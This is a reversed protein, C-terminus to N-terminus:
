FDIPEYKLGLSKAVAEHCVRGAAVNVGGRLSPELRTAEIVGHDAIRAAYPMTANTLAFTSTHAVAGPMNTVGYHLVGDVVYTPADHTTGHITEICGGQDIAVDMIVSGPEMARVLDHTVLTPARGGPLLVAGVVLDARIVEESITDRNSYLLNVRAGFIDDLYELRPISVDLISVTAGLGVAIKAAATGVTGGGLIVVRGRRVGPVGGLLVGKGGRDSELLNAGIQVSMKGAVESMPQLLPLRGDAMAITEYAVATVRRELLVPALDPVAALHFYTFITQNEGILEYESVVPEKVKIIMESSAWVGSASDVMAAGAGSFLEDTIGSGRGAGVQIRVEHGRSVLERVGAPTIAVRGEHVKVESPVGIKM